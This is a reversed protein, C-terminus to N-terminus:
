PKENWLGWVPTLNVVPGSDQGQWKVALQYIMAFPVVALSM